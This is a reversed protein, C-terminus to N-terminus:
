QLEDVKISLNEENFIADFCKSCTGSILLERDGTMLHSMAKQIPMGHQWDYFQQSTCNINFHNKCTQCYVGLILNDGTKTYSMPQGLATRVIKVVSM